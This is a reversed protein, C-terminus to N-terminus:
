QRPGRPILAWLAAIISILGVIVMWLPLAVGLEGGHGEPRPLPNGEEIHQLYFQNM